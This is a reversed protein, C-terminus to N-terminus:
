GCVTEKVILASLRTQATALLEYRWGLTVLTTATTTLAAAEVRTARHHLVHSSSPVALLIVSLFFSPICRYVRLESLVLPVLVEVRPYTYLKRLIKYITSSISFSIM